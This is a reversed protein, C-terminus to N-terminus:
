LDTYLLWANLCLVDPNGHPIGSRPQLLSRPGLALPLPGDRALRTLDPFWPQAPWLPAVLIMRPADEEAKRLVRPLLAFPPFAYVELGKWSLSFADVAWALDDPVPSVFLPLRTSFRTAFLDLIPRSWLRWVPELVSHALTWETNVVSHPRSLLDALVNVTGKIHRAELSRNREHLWIWLAEAMQSLPQSHTGGQHNLYAVVTSNDSLVLLHGPPLGAELQHLALCVAQMELLNIHWTSQELSWTGHAVLSGSHAGWGLLSADTFVEASPSPLSIPVGQLLWDLDTWPLLAQRIAPSIPILTDWSDVSQDWVSLLCRQLPRKRTVALPVVPGLSECIGLLRAFMRASVSQQTQLSSLVEQLRHIRKILPRVVWSVTDFTMGLYSFEQSPTLESKALNVSFGLARAQQLVLQTHSVCGERTQSKVLWDDIYTSFRVGLGRVVTALERVVRTFIWPSLSLGFPLARFQFIRHKWVFRMWKRHSPHIMVHFYADTLDISTVWDGPRLSARVSAPTEMRFHIRRLFRNLPSLDLVPRWGGTSKPVVFLRGYFGPSHPALVEEVAEKLCLAQVEADLASQAAPSALPRFSPPFRTLPPRVPGWQLKFGSRVM